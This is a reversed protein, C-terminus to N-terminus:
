NKSRIGLQADNVTNIDWLAFNSPNAQIIAQAATFGVGLPTMPTLYNVGNLRVVADLNKPGVEAFRALASVVIAKINTYTPDLDTVQFTSIQAATTANIFTEDNLVVESIGNIDGVWQASDGQATIALTALKFGITPEDAVVVQSYITNTENNSANVEDVGTPALVLSTIGSLAFNGAASFAIQKDAYIEILGSTGHRLRIDLTVLGQVFIPATGIVTSGVRITGNSTISFLTNGATNRMSIPQATASIRNIFLDFHFWLENATVHRATITGGRRVHVGCRAPAAFSGSLTTEIANFRNFSPLKGGGFLITM